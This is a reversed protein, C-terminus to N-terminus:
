VQLRVLLARLVFHRLERCCRVARCVSTLNLSRASRFSSGMWEAIGPIQRFTKSGKAVDHQLRRQQDRGKQESEAQAIFDIAEFIRQANLARFRVIERRFARTTLKRMQWWPALWAAQGAFAGHRRHRLLLALLRWALPSAARLLGVKSGVHWM